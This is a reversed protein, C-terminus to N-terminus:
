LEHILEIPNMHMYRTTIHVGEHPRGQPVPMRELTAAASWPEPRVFNDINGEMTSEDKPSPNNSGAASKM